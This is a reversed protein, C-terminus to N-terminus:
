GASEHAVREAEREFSDGPDTVTLAGGMPAGRQQSVHALEHAILRDGDATGPRYEGRAFFVDRGTTFARAQVSRALADAVADSHVRVDGTPGVLPEMRARAGADLTGGGGRRSNIMSQVAPHVRGGPLLGAGDRALLRALTM